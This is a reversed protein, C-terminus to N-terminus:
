TVEEARDNCCWDRKVSIEQCKQNSDWSRMDSGFTVKSSAVNSYLEGAKLFDQIALKEEQTSNTLIKDSWGWIFCNLATLSWTVSIVKNKFKLDCEAYHSSSTSWSAWPASELGAFLNLHPLEQETRPCGGSLPPLYFSGGAGNLDSKRKERKESKNPRIQYDFKRHRVEGM